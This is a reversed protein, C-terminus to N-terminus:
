WCRLRWRSIRVDSQSQWHRYSTAASVDDRFGGLKRLGRHTTGGLPRESSGTSTPTRRSACCKSDASVRCGTRRRPATRSRRSRGRPPRTRTSPPWGRGRAKTCAARLPWGTCLQGLHAQGVSRRARITVTHRASCTATGAQSDISFQDRSYGGPNPVAPVKARPRERAGGPGAPRGTATAEGSREGEAESPPDHVDLFLPM